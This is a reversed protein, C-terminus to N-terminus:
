KKAPPGLKGKRSSKPKSAEAKAAAAAADTEDTDAYTKKGEKVDKARKAVETKIWKQDPVSLFRNAIQHVEMQKQSTKKGPRADVGLVVFGSKIGIFRAEFTEIRHGDGYTWTRYPGYETYSAVPVVGGSQLVGAFLPSSVALVMAFCFTKM